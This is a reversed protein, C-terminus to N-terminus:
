RNTSQRPVLREPARAKELASFLTPHEQSLQPQPAFYPNTGEEWLHQNAAAGCHETDTRMLPRGGGALSASSYPMADLVEGEANRLLVTGGGNVLAPWTEMPMSVASGFDFHMSDSERHAVLTTGSPWCGSACFRPSGNWDLSWGDSSACSDAVNVATLAIFEAEPAGLAPTPDPHIATLRWQGSGTSPFLLLCLGMSLTPWLLFRGKPAFDFGAFWSRTKM